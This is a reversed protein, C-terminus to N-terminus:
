CLAVRKSGDANFYSGGCRYRGDPLKEVKGGGMRKRILGAIQDSAVVVGSSAFERRVFNRWTAPWDAKRGKAGAVGLWYDRFREAVQGPDVDPRESQCWAIQDAGPFGDPIRSGAPSRSERKEKKEERSEEGRPTEQHETANCPTVKANCPEPQRQRERFARVREASNDDTRERKPQRKEWASVRGTEADLLSRERMREYIRRAKGDDMGLAFDMAEFDPLGPNGRDEAASALELLCAWTAIVEAVSAGAKKAILGFKQDNVSGHYWRFWDIGGAM